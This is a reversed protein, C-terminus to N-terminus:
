ANRGESEEDKHKQCQHSGMGRGLAAGHAILIGGRGAGVSPGGKAVADQNQEQRGEGEKDADKEEEVIASVGL